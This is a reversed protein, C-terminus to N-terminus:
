RRSGVTIEQICIEDIRDKMGTGNWTGDVRITYVSLGNVEAEIKEYVTVETSNAISLSGSLSGSNGAELTTVDIDDSATAGHIGITASTFKGTVRPHKIKKQRYEDDGSSYQFAIYYPVTEGSETDFRYTNVEIAGGGDRGGALFEFHGNVTAVGSVAMDHTSSSLIIPPSWVEQELMFPLIISVWFNDSNKYAASYVYCVCENAPDHAVFVRSAHWSYTLEKVPAAFARDLSGDSGDEPSRIPSNTFGYLRDNAFCLAYPNKFGSKWFPRTSIPFLPNETYAAIQLTNTTLLYLRGAAMYFGIITEPPSLPVENRDGSDFVLPAAALNSLKFPVLSAGPADPDYDETGKGVASILV